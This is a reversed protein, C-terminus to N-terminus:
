TPAHLDRIGLKDFTSNVSAEIYKTREHFVPNPALHLASRGDCFLTVKTPHSIGLREVDKLPLSTSDGLHHNQEIPLPAVDTLGEDPLTAVDTLGEDAVFQSSEWSEYEPVCQWEFYAAKDTQQSM